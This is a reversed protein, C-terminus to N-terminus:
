FFPIFIYGEFLCYTHFYWADSPDDDIVQVEESETTNENGEEVGEDSTDNSSIIKQVDKIDWYMKNSYLFLQSELNAPLVGCRLNTLFSQQFSEM